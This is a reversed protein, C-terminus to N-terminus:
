KPKMNLQKLIFSYKFAESKLNGSITSPGYHGSESNLYMLYPKRDSAIEQLKAIYKFSHLPPVRDDNDSTIVLTAPYDVDKNLNYLPSYSLLNLFQISDSVSGYEDQHVYGIGFQEYRLMDMVGMETVAVKFLDPRQNIVAGVLLGGNSGGNIAILDKNTIKISILFEAAAIFDDFSNQKNLAKGLSHWSKGLEGGGRIQPVALVGGSNMFLIQGADFFPNLSLGFGGYGYLLVPNNSNSLDLDKRYTLYMPILTSDKSAYKIFKTEFKKHNYTISTKSLLETSNKKLNLKYVVSPFHFSNIFYLTKTDNNNGDFGSVYYGEEFESRVLPNGELDFILLTYVGNKFYLGLIKNDIINVKKLVHDFQGVLEYVENTKIDIAVIMGNNANFDTSLYFKGNIHDIVNFSSESEPCEMLEKFDSESNLDKYLIVNIWDKGKKKFTYLIIYKEDSTIEFASHSYETEQIEYYCSDEKQSTNVKHYYLRQNKIIELLENGSEPKDYRWYFFGNGKWGIDSYKVSNLVDNLYKGNENNYIRIERWDSGSKSLSFALYKEDHSAKFNTLSLEENRGEFRNPDIILSPNGYYNEQRYLVPSSSRSDYKYFYYYDGEKILPKFGIHNYLDLYDYIRSYYRLEKRRYKKILKEQEGIWNITKENNKELIRYSDHIIKGFITDVQDSKPANPYEFTNQSFCRSFLLIILLSLLLRM